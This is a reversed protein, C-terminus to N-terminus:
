FRPVYKIAEFAEAYQVQIQTGRMRLVSLFYEENFYYRRMQTRYCKLAELKREVQEETLPIFTNTTLQINDWPMEYGLVTSNKFARMAEETVTSHDQHLDTTAPTAVFDPHHELNYDYLIQLIDQRQKPFRRREFDFVQIKTVGLTAAAERVERKLEENECWSFVLMEVHCGHEILKAITGGVGIEADDTHPSLIVAREFM